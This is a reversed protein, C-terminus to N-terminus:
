SLESRDVIEDKVRGECVSDLSTSRLSVLTEVELGLTASSSESVAINVDRKPQNRTGGPGRRVEDDRALEEAGDAWGVGERERAEETAGGPGEGAGLTTGLIDNM